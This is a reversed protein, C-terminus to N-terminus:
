FDSKPKRRRESKTMFYLSTIILLFYVTLDSTIGYKLGMEITRYISGLLVFSFGFNYFGLRSTLLVLAVIGAYVVVYVVRLFTIWFDYTSGPDDWFELLFPFVFVLVALRLLWNIIITLIKQMQM